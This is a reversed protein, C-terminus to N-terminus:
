DVLLISGIPYNESGYTTEALLYSEALYCEINKQTDVLTSTSFITQKNKENLMEESLTENHFDKIISIIEDFIRIKNINKQYYEFIFCIFQRDNFRLKLLNM